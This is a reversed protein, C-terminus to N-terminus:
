PAALVLAAILVVVAGIIFIVDARHSMTALRPSYTSYAM